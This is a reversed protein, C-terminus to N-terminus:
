FVSKPFLALSVGKSKEFITGKAIDKAKQLFLDIEFTGIKSTFAEAFIPRQVFYGNRRLFYLLGKRKELFLGTEFIGIKQCFNFSVM